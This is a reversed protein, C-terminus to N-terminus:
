PDVEVNVEVYDPNGNITANIQLEWPGSMLFYIESVLFKTPNDKVPILQPVLNGTGHGHIKMWPKIRIDSLTNPAFFNADAFTVYAQSEGEDTATPGQKWELHVQWNAKQSIHGDAASFLPNGVIPLEPHNSSDPVADTSPTNKSRPEHKPGCATLAVISVIFVWNVPTTIIQTKFKLPGIFYKTM